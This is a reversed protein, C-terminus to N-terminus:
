AKKREMRKKKEKGPEGGLELYTRFAEYRGSRRIECQQDELSQPIEEWYLPPIEAPPCGCSGGYFIGVPTLFPHDAMNKGPAKIRELMLRVANAAHARVPLYISTLPVPTLETLFSADCGTVVVDEPCQIGARHLDAILRVALADQQCLFATVRSKRILKM